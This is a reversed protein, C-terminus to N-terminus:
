RRRSTASGRRPSKVSPSGSSARGARTSSTRPFFAFSPLFGAKGVADVAKDVASPLRCFRPADGDDLRDLVQRVRPRDGRRRPGVAGDSEAGPKVAVESWAVRFGLRVDSRDQRGEPTDSPGSRSRRPAVLMHASACRGSKTPDRWCEELTRRRSRVMVDVAATADETAAHDAGVRAVHADLQGGGVRARRSRGAHLNPCAAVSRRQGALRRRHGHWRRGRWRRRRCGDIDHTVVGLGTSQSGLRSAGAHRAARPSVFHVIAVGFEFDERVTECNWNRDSVRAPIGVTYGWARGTPHVGDDDSWDDANRDDGRRRREPRRHEANAKAQVGSGPRQSSGEAGGGDRPGPPPRWPPRATRAARTCRPRSQQRRRRAAIHGKLTRFARADGRRGRRRRAVGADKRRVSRSAGAGPGAGTVAAASRRAYRGMRTTMKMKAEIAEAANGGKEKRDGAGVTSYLCRRRRSM